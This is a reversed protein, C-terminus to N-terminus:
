KIRAAAEKVLSLDAFKTIDLSTKIFGVDHVADVNSQLMALNPLGNPDRYFDRKTFAWDAREPTQKLFAALIAVAETHNAPDSYWRYSRVMDELLDVVAARNKDLFAQRMVWFSLETGNLADKLTFLTRAGKVLEPDYLFPPGLTILDAKHEMLVAKMNPFPVEVDSYDHQFQLGHRMFYARLGLEVGAGIGNVAVIKGKLDEVKQAPSDNLVLYHVTTYGDVGDQTEDAIIKLDTLGANEVAIPFSSFNITGIEIEGAALATIETPSASFFIPEFDYSVGKHKAIGDKAFLIPILSAPTAVWPARIKVPDAQACSAAGIGLALALSTAALMRRM